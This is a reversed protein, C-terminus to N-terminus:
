DVVIRKFYREGDSVVLVKYSGAAPFEIKRNIKGPSNTIEEFYIQKGLEDLILLNFDSLNLKSVDITLLGNIVPNPYVSFDKQNLEDISNFVVNQTITICGYKNSIECHYAGSITLNIFFKDEGPLLTDNRFWQYRAYGPKLSIINNSFLFSDDPYEIINIIVSDSSVCGLNNYSYFIKQDGTGTQSTYLKSGSVGDGSWNGGVPSALLEITDGECGDMKQFSIDKTEIITLDFTDQNSCNNSDTFIYILPYQQSNNVVISDTNVYFNQGTQSIINGSWKGGIPLGNLLYNGTKSCISDFDSVNINPLDHIDFDVQLKNSCNNTDTYTYTVAHSGAGIKSFDLQTINQTQGQLSYLGGDPEFFSDLQVPYHDICYKNTLSSSIAPLPYITSTITDKAVCGNNNHAIAIVSEQKYTKFLDKTGKTCGCNLGIWKYSDVQKGIDYTPVAMLVAEEGDCVPYFQFTTIKFNDVDIHMTDTATCGSDNIAMVIITTDKVLNNLPIQNQNTDGTNWIFHKLPLNSKFDPILTISSGACILTDNPLSVDIYDPIYITGSDEVSCALNSITASYKFTGTDEFTYTFALRTRFLNNDVTWDAIANDELKFRVRGCNRKEIDFNIEPYERVMIQYAKSTYAYVPCANDKVTVHFIYPRSSASGVPAVWTLTGTPHKVSDNNDTWTAGTINSDWTITLSDSPDYDMTRIEFTVTDGECVEKYFPGSQLPAQNNPCSIVNFIMDRTVEGIKQGNRYETVKIAIVAVEVKMPRFSIDGTQPDLHMGRPPALNTNPFGWFYVPKDYDYQGSFTNPSTANKLPQAFEYVLSDSLMGNSDLDYDNVGINFVVDQGICQLYKPPALFEPTNNTPALCKNLMAEIYFSESASGTSINVQRCCSSFSFIIECCSTSSLDILYYHEGKEIGYAFSCSQDTCKNCFTDCTPTVDKFVTPFVSVSTISAGTKCKVMLSASNFNHSRCDRYFSLTVMFSDKGVCDYTIEGGLFWNSYANKSIFSFTLTILLLLVLKKM